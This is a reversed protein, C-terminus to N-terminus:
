RMRREITEPLRSDTGRLGGADHPTPVLRLDHAPPAYMVRPPREALSQAMAPARDSLWHWLTEKLDSISPRAGQAAALGALLCDLLGKDGSERPPVNIPAYDCKVRYPSLDAHEMLQYPTHGSYLEYFVSCLAYVDIKSSHRLVQVGPADRTLMEPPAYEITGNRWINTQQTFDPAANPDMQRADISAASGLDILVLDLIGNALQDRLPYRDLRVMINRPSIDRHSFGSTRDQAAVLIQLVRVGVSAVWEAAVGMGYRTTRPLYPAVSRLTRGEVWDMLIVPGGAYTGFGQTAPWGEIGSVTRQALYEERFAQARGRFIAESRQRDANGGSAGLLSKLCFAEGYANFVKTARGSGGRHTSEGGAALLTMYQRSATDAAGVATPSCCDLSDLEILRASGSPTGSGEDGSSRPAGTGLFSM